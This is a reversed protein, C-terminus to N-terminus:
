GIADHISSLIQKQINEDNAFDNSESDIRLIRTKYHSIEAVGRSIGLNVAELYEIRIQEEEARARRRIRYLQENASCQLHIILAAGQLESTVQDFVGRFANLQLVKLNIEAYAQDQLFSFDCVLVGNDHTVTKFQSYHQLLFTVETEFAHRQPNKYFLSWFPNQHFNEFLAQCGSQEIVSCLTTKGSAIGGCIEIRRNVGIFEDEDSVNRPSSLM